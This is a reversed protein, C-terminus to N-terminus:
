QLYQRFHLMKFRGQVICSWDMCSLHTEIPMFVSLLHFLYMYIHIYMYKASWAICSRRWFYISPVRLINAKNWYDMNSILLIYGIYKNFKNVKQFTWSLSVLGISNYNTANVNHTFKFITYLMKLIFLTYLFFRFGHQHLHRYEVFTYFLAVWVQEFMSVTFKLLVRKQCLVVSLVDNQWYDTYNIWM